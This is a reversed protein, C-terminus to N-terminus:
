SISREKNKFRSNHKSPNIEYGYSSLWQTWVVYLRVRVARVSIYHTSLAIFVDSRENEAGRMMKEKAIRQWCLKGIIYASTTADPKGEVLIHHTYKTKEKNQM